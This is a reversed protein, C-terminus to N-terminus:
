WSLGVSIMNVSGLMGLHRYAYDFGIGFRNAQYRLGGGASFGDM